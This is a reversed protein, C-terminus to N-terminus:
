QDNIRDYTNQRTPDLRMLAEYVDKKEKDTGGHFIDALEDAKADLFLTVIYTAPRAQNAKVLVDMGEAIRARGNAVNASMQDLGLRHYEYLYERFPKFAADNLNSIIAYRNKNGSSRDYALWAQQEPETMSAGQCTQVIAECADFCGQGGMRSYTALDYGIVLYSYYALMATLNTTFTSQQYELRDFEQYTFNFYKDRINLVPTSYSTGYVPRRSQLTMECSYENDNVGSVIIMMNCEIREMDAFTMNTWKTTNIYDEISKQLTQFVQKNSGEIKDSNVTVHCNIEQAHIPAKTCTVMFLILLWFHIRYLYKTM